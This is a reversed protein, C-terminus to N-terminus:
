SSTPTERETALYIIRLDNSEWWLTHSLGISSMGDADDPFSSSATYVNGKDQCDGPVRYLVRSLGEDSCSLETSSFRNWILVNAGCYTENASRNPLLLAFISLAILSVRWSKMAGLPFQALWVRSSQIQLMRATTDNWRTFVNNCSCSLRRKVNCIRSIKKCAVSRRESTYEAFTRMGQDARRSKRANVTSFGPLTLCVPLSHLSRPLNQASGERM